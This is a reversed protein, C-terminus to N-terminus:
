GRIEHIKVLGDSEEEIKKARELSPTRRGAMYHWIAINTVGIKQAFEKKTIRYKKLYERLLM